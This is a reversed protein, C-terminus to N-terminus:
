HLVGRSGPAAYGMVYVYAQGTPTWVASRNNNKIPMCIPALLVTDQQIPLVVDGITVTASTTGVPFIALLGTMVIVDQIQPVWSANGSAGLLPAELIMQDLSAANTAVLQELTNHATTQLELLKLLLAEGNAPLDIKDNPGFPHAPTPPRMAYWHLVHADTICTVYFSNGNCKKVHRTIHALSTDTERNIYPFSLLFPFRM